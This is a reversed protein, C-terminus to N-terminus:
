HSCKIIAPAPPNSGGCPLVLVQQRAAQRSGMAEIKEDGAQAATGSAALIAAVSITQVRKRRFM